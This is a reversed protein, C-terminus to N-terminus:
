KREKARRQILALKTQEAKGERWVKEEMRMAIEEAMRAQYYAAYESDTAKKFYNLIGHQPQESKLATRISSTVEMHSKKAKPEEYFSPEKAGEFPRARKMPQLTSCDGDSNDSNTADCDSSNSDFESVDSPSPTYHPSLKFHTTTRLGLIM